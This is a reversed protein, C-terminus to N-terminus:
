NAGGPGRGRGVSQAPMAEAAWDMGVLGLAREASGSRSAVTLNERVDLDDFLETSQWTRTWLLRPVVQPRSSCAPHHWPGDRDIDVVSRSETVVYTLGDVTVHEAPAYQDTTIATM